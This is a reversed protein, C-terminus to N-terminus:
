EKSFVSIINELEEPTKHNFMTLLEESTKGQVIIRMQEPTLTELRPIGVITMGKCRSCLTHVISSVEIKNGSSNLSGKLMTTFGKGKCQPCKKPKTREM